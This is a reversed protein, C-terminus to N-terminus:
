WSALRQPGWGWFTSPSKPRKHRPSPRLRAGFGHLTQWGRTMSPEVGRGAERVRPACRRGGGPMCCYWFGMCIGPPGEMAGYWGCPEPKAPGPAGPLCRVRRLASAPTARCGVPLRPPTRTRQTARYPATEVSTTSSAEFSSGAFPIGPHTRMMDMNSRSPNPTSHAPNLKRNLRETEATAANAAGCAARRDLRVHRATRLLPRLPLERGHTACRRRSAVSQKYGM